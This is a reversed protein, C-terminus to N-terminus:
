VGYTAYLPGASDSCLSRHCVNIAARGLGPGSDGVFGYGRNDTRGGAAQSVAKRSDLPVQLCQRIRRADVSHDIRM